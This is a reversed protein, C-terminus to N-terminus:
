RFLIDALKFFYFIAYRILLLSTLLQMGASSSSHAYCGGGAGGRGKRWINDPQLTM